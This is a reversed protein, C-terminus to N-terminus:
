YDAWVGGVRHVRSLRVDGSGGLNPSKRGQPIYQIPLLKNGRQYIPQLSWPRSPGSPRPIALALSSVVVFFVVMTGYQGGADGQEV